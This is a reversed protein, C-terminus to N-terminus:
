GISTSPGTLTFDKLYIINEVILADRGQEYGFFLFDEIKYARLIFAFLFILVILFLENRSIKM